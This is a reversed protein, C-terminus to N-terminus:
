DLEDNKASRASDIHDDSCVRGFRADHMAARYGDWYADEIETRCPKDQREAITDDLDIMAQLEEEFAERWEKNIDVKM